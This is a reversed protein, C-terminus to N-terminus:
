GLRWSIVFAMRTKGRVTEMEKDSKMELFLESWKNHETLFIFIELFKNLSVKQMIVFINAM